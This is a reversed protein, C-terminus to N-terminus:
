ITKHLKLCAAGLCRRLACCPVDLNTPAGEAEMRLGFLPTCSTGLRLDFRVFALLENMSIKDPRSLKNLKGRGENNKIPPSLAKFGLNKSGFQFSSPM